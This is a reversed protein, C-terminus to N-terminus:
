WNQPDRKSVVRTYFLGTERGISQWEYKEPMPCVPSRVEVAWDLARELSKQDLDGSFTRVWSGGFHEKLEGMAGRDPVLVPRNFSLALLASGSNLVERYPLVVLDAANLYTSVDKPDVFEFRLVVRSDSDAEKRIQDALAPSNPSGVIYLIIDERKMDRFARILVDANKYPRIAGFFMLVKAEQPIGLLERSDTTMQPYQDRYHGHPIVATPIEKLHPFREKAMELGASSLSIAGDLRPIFNRWFWAELRPHLREHSAVNHITWVVRTGRFRLYDMTAFMGSLKFAAHAANPINLLADPWHVHWVAYKRLLNGPWGDSKVDARLNSYVLGTYPNWPTKIPWALIQMKEIV